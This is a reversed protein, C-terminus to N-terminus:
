GALNDTAATDQRALRLWADQVVDEADAHSGLMRYAVVRLRDRQAEFARAVPGTSGTDSMATVKRRGAEDHPIVHGSPCLYGTLLLVPPFVCSSGPSDRPM